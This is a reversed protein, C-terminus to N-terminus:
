TIVLENYQYDVMFDDWANGARLTTRGNSNFEAIADASVKNSPKLVFEFDACGEKHGKRAITMLFCYAFDLKDKPKFGFLREFDEMDVVTTYSEFQTKTMHTSLTDILFRYSISPIYLEETDEKQTLTDIKQQLVRQKKALKLVLAKLGDVTGELNSITNELMSTQTTNSTEETSVSSSFNFWSSM